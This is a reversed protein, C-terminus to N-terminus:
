AKAGGYISDPEIHSVAHPLFGVNSSIKSAEHYIILHDHAVVTSYLESSIVDFVKSVMARRFFRPLLGTKTPHFSEVNRHAFRRQEQLKKQIFTRPRYSGEEFILIDYAKIEEMARWLTKRSSRILM